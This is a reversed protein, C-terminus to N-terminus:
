KRRMNKCPKKNKLVKKTNETTIKIPVMFYELDEYTYGYGKEFYPIIKSVEFMNCNEPYFKSIKYHSILSKIQEKTDFLVVDGLDIETDSIWVYKNNKSILYHVANDECATIMWKRQVNSKLTTCDM